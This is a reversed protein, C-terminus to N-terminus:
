GGYASFRRIGVRWLWLAAATFFAAYGWQVGLQRVAEDLPQLGMMTEVPFGLLYKFPLWAGAMSAALIALRSPDSTVQEGAAYLLVALVPAVFVLRMPIAALQEAAYAALPHVPRMLRMGLTGQRIAMVIEWMVWNSVIQRIIMTSLYYATFQPRGFRGVAGDDVVASWVALNILPLNMTLAWVLFESRYAVMDAFGVRLMTPFARLTGSM